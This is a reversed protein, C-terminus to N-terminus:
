EEEVSCAQQQYPFHLVESVIFGQWDFPVLACVLLILLSSAIMVKFGMMIMDM